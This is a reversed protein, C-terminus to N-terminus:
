SSMFEKLVLEFEAQQLRATDHLALVETMDRKAAAIELAQLARMLRKAALNGVAGRIGHALIGIEEPNQREISAELKKFDRPSSHLYLEVLRRLREPKGRMRHIAADKDWVVESVETQSADQGYQDPDSGGVLWQNLKDALVEIEIPKTLFDNMGADLCKERDGMMANATMAVIPITRYRDGGDGQRILQTAEYGDVEPMQCDMLVLSYALSSPNEKLRDIAERGNSAINYSINLDELIGAAVEQNIFNDEVILVHARAPINDTAPPPSKRAQAGPASLSGKEQVLESLRPSAELPKLSERLDAPIIPKPFAATAGLEILTSEEPQRALPTMLICVCNQGSTYQHFTSFNNGKLQEEGKWDVFVGHLKREIMQERLSAIKEVAEVRGGWSRLQRCIAESASKNGDVVIFHKNRLDVIPSANNPRAKELPIEISFCSGKGVESVLSVSGGLADCLKKVIALGLGTGGFERTTSVDGQSFSEFIAERKSESIGIGTDTISCKFVASEQELSARLVIEGEMTFKVANRAINTIIQRIRLPDSVVIVPPLGAFDAIVEISKEQADYGMTQVVESLMSELDFEIHEIDLKGAEVKSFDLLDNVITLLSESSSYALRAYHKQKKDLSSNELLTLMGMVGNIPTRLEHSMNALFLNKTDLAEKLSTNRDRLRIRLKTTSHCLAGLVFMSFSFVIWSLYIDAIESSNDLLIFAGINQVGLAIITYLALMCFKSPSLRFVGFSMTILLLFYYPKSPTTALTMFVLTTNIAWSMQPVTLSGDRFRRSIGSSILFVFLLSVVWFIALVVVLTYHSILSHGNIHAYVLLLSLIVGGGVGLLTNNLWTKQNRDM